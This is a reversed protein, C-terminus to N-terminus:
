YLCLAAESVDFHVISKAMLESWWLFRRSQGRDEAEVRSIDTNLGKWQNSHHIAPIPLNLTATPVEV